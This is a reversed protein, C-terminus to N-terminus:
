LEIRKGRGTDRSPDKENAIPDRQILGPKELPPSNVPSPAKETQGPKLECSAGGCEQAFAPVAMVLLLGVAVILAALYKKM